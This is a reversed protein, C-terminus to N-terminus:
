DGGPTEQKLISIVDMGTCGVLGIAFLQMPQFGLEHGGARKKQM